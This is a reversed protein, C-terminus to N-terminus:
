SETGCRATALFSEFEDLRNNMVELKKSYRDCIESVRADLGEMMTEVVLLARNPGTDHPASEIGKEDCSSDALFALTEEVVADIMNTASLETRSSGRDFAEIVDFEETNSVDILTSEYDNSGDEFTYNVMAMHQEASRQAHWNPVPLSQRGHKDFCTGDLNCVCESCSSQGPCPSGCAGGLNCVCELCSSQGDPCPSAGGSGTTSRKDVYSSHNEQFDAQGDKCVSDCSDTPCSADMDSETAKKDLVHTLEDVFSTLSVSTIHRVVNFADDIRILKKALRADIRRHSKLHRAASSLGQFHYGACQSTLRLLAGHLEYVLLEAM